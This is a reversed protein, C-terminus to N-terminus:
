LPIYQKLILKWHFLTETEAAKKFKNKKLISYSAINNKETSALISNVSAEEGAWLVIGRVAETMFGRNRFKDYTGYGIEIEGAANPEGLICIDGVM